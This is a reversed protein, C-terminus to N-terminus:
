QAFRDYFRDALNLIEDKEKLGDILHQPFVATGNKAGLLGGVISANTDTDGGVRIADVVSQFSDPNKLFCCYSLPLSDYVYFPKEGYRKSLSDLDEKYRQNQMIDILRVSLRDPNDDDISGCCHNEIMEAQDIASTLFDTVYDARVRGTDVLSEWAFTRGVAVAHVVGQSMGMCSRHTMLALEATNVLLQQVRKKDALMASMLGIPAIKMMVGNGAGGPVGSSVWSQGSKIREIASTTGKGWGSIREKMAEVHRRGMDLMNIAGCAILSEAVVRTLQTDDTTEGAKVSGDHFPHGAPPDQYQLMQEDTIAFLQEASYVKEYPMGLADGIAIGLFCARVRDRYDTM